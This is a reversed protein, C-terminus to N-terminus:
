KPSRGSFSGKGSPARAGASRRLAAPPDACQGRLSLGARVPWRWDPLSRRVHPRDRRMHVVRVFRVPERTADYVPLYSYRTLPWIRYRPPVYPRISGLGPQAVVRAAATLAAQLFAEAAPPNDEAIRVAARELERAARPAFFDQSM